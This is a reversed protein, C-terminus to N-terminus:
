LFILKLLSFLLISLIGTFPITYLWSKGIDLIIRYNLANIGRAFGVGIIAGVVTHTTSLPVGIHSGVLVTTAAGLEAAFGRTPTIETIKTGITEIVKYGYTALGVVIGIGGLLLVWRPAPVTGTIANPVFTTGDFMSVVASLPGVANAVDNSGHAFAILSATIMQLYHFMREVEKYADANAGHQNHNELKKRILLSFLFSALASAIVICFVTAWLSREVGLKDAVTPIVISSFCLFVPFSLLSNRSRMAHVPNITDIVMSRILGFIFFAILGGLLPSIVWSSAILGLQGWHVNGFGVAAIGFGAIAGVISHTTSVPWGIYAAIHLWIAAAMLAALMGLTFIAAGQPIHNFVDPDIIGKRLTSTVGSGALMAGSFEFIAAIIVAQKFTIAGSGVGTGMANSADNAGITWAMYAGFALALYLVFEM